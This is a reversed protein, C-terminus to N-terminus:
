GAPVEAPLTRTEALVSAVRGIQETLGQAQDGWIIIGILVIAVVGGLAVYSGYETWFNKKELKRLTEINKSLHWQHDSYNPELADYEEGESSLRVVPKYDSGKIAYKIISRGRHDGSFAEDPPIPLKRGFLISLEKPVGKAKIIKAKQDKERRLGSATYRELEVKINFTSMWYFFMITGGIVVTTLLGVFFIGITGFDVSFGPIGPVAM